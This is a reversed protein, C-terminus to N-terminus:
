QLNNPLEKIKMALIIWTWGTIMADIGILTGIVWLGSVPWQMWILIGLILTLIGNFLLWSKHPIDSMLSFIIKFIGSIVLFIALMLTLTVANLAPYAVIFLGAIVYLAGLFLHLFFSGWRNIKFAKFGEIFGFIFLILGLYMVSFLTSAVSFVIALGGIVVLSIGLMLYWERNEKLQRLAASRDGNNFWMNNM